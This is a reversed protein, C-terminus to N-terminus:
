APGGGRAIGTGLESTSRLKGHVERRQHLVEWVHGPLLMRKIIVGEEVDACCGFQSKRLVM